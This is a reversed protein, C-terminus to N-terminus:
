EDQTDNKATRAFFSVCFLFGCALIGDFTTSRHSSVCAPNKINQYFFTTGSVIPVCIAKPLVLTAFFYTIVVHKAGSHTHPTGPNATSSLSVAGM